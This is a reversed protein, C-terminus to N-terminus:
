ARRDNPAGESVLVEKSAPSQRAAETAAIQWCWNRLGNRAEINTAGNSDEAALLKAPSTGAYKANLYRNLMKKESEETEPDKERRYADRLVDELVRAIPGHAGVGAGRMHEPLHATPIELTYGNYSSYSFRGPGTSTDSNEVFKVELFGGAGFVPVRAGRHEWVIADVPPNLPGGRSDKVVVRTMLASGATHKYGEVEVVASVELPSTSSIIQRSLRRRYLIGNAPGSLWDVSLEVADAGIKELLNTWTLGPAPLLAMEYRYTKSVDLSSYDPNTFAHPKVELDVDSLSWRRHPYAVASRM